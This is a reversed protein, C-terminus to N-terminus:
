RILDQGHKKKKKEEHTGSWNQFYMVASIPVVASVGDVAM